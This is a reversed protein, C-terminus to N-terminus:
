THAGNAHEAEAAIVCECHEEQLQREQSQQQQQQQQDDVEEADRVVGIGDNNNDNDDGGGDDDDDDDDIGNNLTSFITPRSLRIKPPPHLPPPKAFDSLMVAIDRTKAREVCYKAVYQGAVVRDHLSFHGLPQACKPCVIRGHTLATKMWSLRDVVYCEDNSQQRDIHLKTFLWRECKCCCTLQVRQVTGALTALRADEEGSVLVLLRRLLDHRIMEAPDLGVGVLSFPNM